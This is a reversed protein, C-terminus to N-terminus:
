EPFIMDRKLLKARKFITILEEVSFARETQEDFLSNHRYIMERIKKIAINGYTPEASIFWGGSKLGKALSKVVNSAAHPIHHLGGILIILDYTEPLPQYTTVDQKIVDLDSFISKLKELVRDSYDFGKYM